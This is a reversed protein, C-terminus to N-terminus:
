TNFAQHHQPTIKVRRATGDDSRTIFIATIISFSFLPPPSFFYYDFINKLPVTVMQQLSIIWTTLSAWESGPPTTCTSTNQTHRSCVWYFSTENPERQVDPYTQCMKYPSAWTEWIDKQKQQWSIWWNESHIETRTHTHTQTLWQWFGEMLSPYCIPLQLTNWAAADPQKQLHLTRHVCSSTERVTLTNIIIAKNILNAKIVPLLSLLTQWSCLWSSQMLHILQQKFM